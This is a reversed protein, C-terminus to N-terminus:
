RGWKQFLGMRHCKCNTGWLNCRCSSDQCCQDPRHDCSKGRAICVSTQQTRKYLLSELAQKYNEIDDIDSSELDLYKSQYISPECTVSAVIYDTVIVILAMAILASLIICRRRSLLKFSELKSKRNNRTVNNHNSSHRYHKDDDCMSMMTSTLM